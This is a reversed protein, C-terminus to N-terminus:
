GLGRGSPSPIKYPVANGVDRKLILLQIKSDTGEGQGEGAPRPFKTHSPAVATGHNLFEKFGHGFLCGYPVADEVDRQQSFVTPTPELGVRRQLWAQFLM